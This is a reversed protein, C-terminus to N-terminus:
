IIAEGRLYRRYEDTILKEFLDRTCDHARKVYGALGSFRLGETMAFDFDLLFAEQKDEPRMLSQFKTTITGGQARSILVMNLNEFEDSVGEPLAVGLNLFRRIPLIGNERSFPIVNIYRWGVRSLEDLEFIRSFVDALRLFEEIFKEHHQYQKEYYAFKDVAIMVGAVTDVSEFRYPRTALPQGPEPSPIFICPFEKKVARHFADRQCEVALDWPFRIECVVEVLPSNPYVKDSNSEEGTVPEPM